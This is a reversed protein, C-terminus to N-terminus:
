TEINLLIEGYPTSTVNEALKEDGFINITRKKIIKLKIAKLNDTSKEVGVDIHGTNGLNFEKYKYETFEEITLHESGFGGTYEGDHEIQIIYSVGLVENMYSSATLILFLSFIIILIKNPKTKYSEKCYTINYIILAGLFIFILLLIFPVISPSYNLYMTIMISILGLLITIFATTTIKEM